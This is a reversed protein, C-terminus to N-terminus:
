EDEAAPGLIDGDPNFKEDGPITTRTVRKNLGERIFGDRKFQPINVQVKTRDLLSQDSRWVVRQDTVANFKGKAMCEEVSTYKGDESKDLQKSHVPALEVRQPIVHLLLKETLSKRPVIHSDKTENQDSHANYTGVRDPLVGTNTTGKLSHAYNTSHVPTGDLKSHIDALLHDRVHKGRRKRVIPSKSM